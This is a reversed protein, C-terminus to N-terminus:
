HRAELLSDFSRSNIFTSLHKGPFDPRKRRESALWSAYAIAGDFCKDRDEEPLKTWAAYADKKSANAQFPFERWLLNFDDPYDPASNTKRKSKQSEFGVINTKLGVIKEEREPEPQPQSSSALAISHTQQPLGTANAVTQEKNKLSKAVGGRYGSASRRESKEAAHSIEKDIRSHTWGDSFFEAITGRAADWQRTTMRCIRALKQEDDPLGGNRWYHMILLMYAGHELTSLHSTDALYDSVYFPM